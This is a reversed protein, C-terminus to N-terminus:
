VESVKSATVFIPAPARQPEGRAELLFEVMETGSVRPIVVNDDEWVRLLDTLLEVYHEEAASLSDAALLEDIQDQADAAAQATRSPRPQREAMLTRYDSGSMRKGTM